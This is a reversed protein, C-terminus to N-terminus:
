SLDRSGSQELLATAESRVTRSPHENSLLVVASRIRPDTLDASSMGRVSLLPVLLGDAALLHAVRDVADSRNRERGGRAVTRALALAARAVIEPDKDLSLLVAFAQLWEWDQRACLTAVTQAAERRQGSEFLRTIGALAVNESVIEFGAFFRLAAPYPTVDEHGWRGTDPATLVDEAVAAFSVRVHDPLDRLDRALREYGLTRAERGIRTNVLFPTLDAWLETRNATAILAACIEAVSPGGIQHKGAAADTAIGEMLQRLVADAHDLLGPDHDQGRILRNVTRAILDLSVSEGADLEAGGPILDDEVVQRLWTWGDSAPSAHWELWASRVDPASVQWDFGVFGRAVDQDFLQDVGQADSVTRLISLAVESQRGAGASLALATKCSSALLASKSRRHHPLDAALAPRGEVVLIELGALCEGRTLLDAATTLVAHEVVRLQGPGRGRSLIRRADRSIADLPGGARFWQIAANTRREDGAHRLLRLADGDKDVYVGAAVAALRQQAIDGRVNRAESHGLLELQLGPFYLDGRYDGNLASAVTRDFVTEGWKSLLQSRRSRNQLLLYPTASRMRHVWISDEGFQELVSDPNLVTLAADALAERIRELTLASGWSVSDSVEFETDGDLVETQLLRLAMEADADGDLGCDQRRMARQQHLAARLLGAGTAPAAELRALERGIAGFCTDYDELEATANTVLLTLATRRAPDRDIEIFKSLGRIGERTTGSAFTKVAEVVVAAFNEVGYRHDMVSAWDGGYVQSALQASPKPALRDYDRAFNPHPAVDYPQLVSAIWALEM